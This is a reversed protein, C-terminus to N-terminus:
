LTRQARVYLILAAALALVMTTFWWAATFSVRDAILGFIPPGIAAGLYKGTQTIGSAAAPAEPNDKVVAFTFLGAWGWGAAFAIAAGLYLGPLGGLNLLVVGGTGTGIMAAVATLDAHQSRDILWGGVVRATLGCVSGVALLIGASSESIGEAVSYSVIFSAITDIGGTGLGVAVALMILLPFPTRLSQPHGAKAPPAPNITHPEGHRPISAAAVLVLLLAARFGWRWGVTLAITPVALGALIAATPVAAHRLGFVLGQRSPDVCQAVTLNSAIQSLASGIGGVIYFVALEPTSGAIWGVGALSVATFGSAILLGAAWGVRESLRGMSPSVLAATGFFLGIMLGLGSLSLDLEARIQVAFGAILFGPLMGVTTTLFAPVVGRWAVVRHPDRGPTM